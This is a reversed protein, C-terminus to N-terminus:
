GALARQIEKDYDSSVSFRERGDISTTEHQFKKLMSLADDGFGLSSLILRDTADRSPSETLPRFGFTTKGGNNSATVNSKSEIWLQEGLQALISENDTMLKGDFLALENLFWAPVHFGDCEVHWLWYATLSSLIAFGAAAGRQSGFTLRHVKSGSLEGVSRTHKPFSRFVNLYNYATSGVLVEAGCAVDSIETPLVSGYRPRNPSIMRFGSVRNYLKLEDNCGLKPIFNQIPVSGISHAREESFILSRQRSTWKLMRSTKLNYGRAPRRILISTRTKAEEGFLAHPQRDFFLATWDGRANVLDARFKRHIGTRSTAVSLPLVYAAADNVGSALTWSMRTFSLYHTDSQKSPQQSSFKNEEGSIYPPNCVIRLPATISGFLSELAERSGVSLANTVKINQRIAVWTERLSTRSARTALHNCLVFTAFDAAQPSIDIGILQRTAFAFVEKDTALSSEALKLASLLFIGSGCAPDLWVFNSAGDGIAKTMFDAVDSPTYFSGIEKRASRKSKLASDRIADLRSTRGFDDLLYPFLAAADPHRCVDQLTRNAECLDIKALEHSNAEDGFWSMARALNVPRATVIGELLGVAIVAWAMRRGDNMARVLDARSGDKVWGITTTAPLQRAVNDIAHQVKDALPSVSGAVSRGFRPSAPDNFKLKDSSIM